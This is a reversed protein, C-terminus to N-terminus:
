VPIILKYYERKKLIGQSEATMALACETTKKTTSVRAPASGTDSPYFDLEKGSQWGSERRNIRVALVEPNGFYNIHVFHKYVRWKRLQVTLIENTM